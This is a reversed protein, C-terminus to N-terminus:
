LQLLLADFRFLCILIWFLLIHYRVNQLVSGSDHCFTNNRRGCAIELSLVGFAYVDAKETLQGRIIYEPAM